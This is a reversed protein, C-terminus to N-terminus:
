GKEKSCRGFFPSLARPFAKYFQVAESLLPHANGWETLRPDLHQHGHEPLAAGLPPPSPLNKLHDQLSATGPKFVREELLGAIEEQFKKLFESRRDM